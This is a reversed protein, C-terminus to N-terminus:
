RVLTVDGRYLLVQGDEFVVEVLYVYVGANMPKGRFTGDWAADASLEPLSPLNDRFFLLEGWRDFIQLSKISAVGAGTFPQFFDNLGDNNPTFINPIYVNLNKDVEVLVRATVPCGQADFALINYQTTEFPRVLPELSDGLFQLYTTPTWFISDNLIPFQSFLSTPQLITSDGLEVEVVEPYELVIEPPESLNILTDISCGSLDSIEILHEGAFVEIQTGLPQSPANNVRFSFFLSSLGTGGFATDVTIITTSDFCPIADIPGLEFQIPSPEEITYTIVDSCGLYDSVTVTYTGAMLDSATGSNSPAINGEWDFSLTPNDDTNGGNASVTLVGNADGNCNVTDVTNAEDVFAVLQPPQGVTISQQFQCGKVDEITVFYTGPSLNNVVPGVDMTNWTFQYPATGGDASITASGDSFGFCTVDNVIELGGPGLPDPFPIFVTEEVSCTGDSVTVTQNEQCLQVATSSLVGLDSEGSSWQFNFTGMAGDSYMATAIATGDCPVGQNEFCSVSDIATFDVEISAPDELIINISIPPCNNADTIEVQYSGAVVDVGGISSFPGDFADLPWDFNYPPTGGSVFISISGNGEGPCLPSITQFSDILIPPPAIVDATDIVECGDSATVTVIYEGPTLGTITTLMPGSQTTSWSYNTIPAGGELADVTLSGDASNFCDLQDDPFSVISPPTPINVTAMATATCNNADQVNLTYMNASLNTLISDTQGPIGWDYTYPFTGGTVEVTISGDNGVACSEDMVDIVTAVLLEPEVIEFVSDVQCGADDTLILTYTGECLNSVTSTTATNVPGPPPIPPVGIWTFGYANSTGGQTSASVQIEGDCVGNCSIDTFSSATIVLEKTAGVTIMASEMCGNGDTVIVEYVGDTVNNVTSSTGTETVGLTPWSIEYEGNADPTGATVSVTISGDTLGSCTVDTVNDVSIDIAPTQPLFTNGTTSCNLATNTVTVSYLGSTVGNITQTMGMNSWMFEYEPGPNSVTVSDLVIVATISGFGGNCPAPSQNFIVNLAPGELIEITDIVDEAIGSDSITVAYSGPALDMVTFSGPDSNIMGPGQVAGAPLSQWSVMVPPTSNSVNVTFMGDDNGACNVDSIDFDVSLQPDGICIEGDTGTFGIIQSVNQLIEIEVPDGSFEIPSCDGNVGILDFCLQFLVEGDPITAGDLLFNTWQLNISTGSDFFNGIGLFPAGANFGQASNFALISPDYLISYQIGDIDNFDAVTFDMCVTSGASGSTSVAEMELAQCVPVDIQFSFGCSKGDEITVDYLGGPQPVSVTVNDGHTAPGSNVTGMVTPDSNLTVTITYNSGDLEPLGGTVDFTAVCAGSGSNTDIDTATIENLSVVAFAADVNSNVCPGGNEYVAQPFALADFTIPSWWFVGPNGGNFTNIFNGDNLFTANGTLDGNTFVWLVNAPPPNTVLCPDTGILALEPGPITPPCNYLAYGIGPPTSGDPDGSLDADGNPIVDIMDGFCLYITDLDTDNSQGIFNGLSITGAFNDQGPPCALVTLNDEPPIIQINQPVGQGLSVQYFGFVFLIFPVFYKLM